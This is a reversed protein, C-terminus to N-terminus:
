GPQNVEFEEAQVLQLVPQTPGAVYWQYYQLIKGSQLREVPAASFPCVWPAWLMWLWLHVELLVSWHDSGVLPDEALEPLLGPASDGSCALSQLWRKGMPVLQV